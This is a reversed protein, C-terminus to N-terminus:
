RVADLPVRVPRILLNGLLAGVTTLIVTVIGGAAIMAIALPPLEIKALWSWPVFLLIKAAVLALGGLGVAIGQLSWNVCWAGAAGGGVLASLVFLALVLAFLYLPAALSTMETFLDSHTMQVIWLGSRLVVLQFGIGASIQTLRSKIPQEIPESLHAYEREWDSRGLARPQHVIPTSSPPGLFTLRMEGDCDPCKASSSDADFRDCSQCVRSTPLTCEM